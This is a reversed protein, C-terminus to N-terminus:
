SVTIQRRIDDINQYCIQEVPTLTQQEIGADVERLTILEQNGRAIKYLQGIRTRAIIFTNDVDAAVPAYQVNMRTVVTHGVM